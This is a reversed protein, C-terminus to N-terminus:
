TLYKQRVEVMYDDGTGAPEIQVIEAEKDEETRKDVDNIYEASWIEIRTNTFQKKM